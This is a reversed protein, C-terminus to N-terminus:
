KDFIGSEFTYINQNRNGHKEIALSILRELLETMEIGSAKWLHAQLSGPMPNVENIYVKENDKKDILFDVRATGSCNLVKFTKIALDQVEKTKAPSLLAPIKVKSKIGKMTGGKTIYKENFTLFEKYSIPEELASAIPDNNGLVACNIEMVDTIGEEVIIRSDYRTAVEFSFCLEEKNNAKGIGISSGTSAPKVFIPYKLNKEIENYINDPNIGWENKSFWLYKVKPLGYSTLIQNTFIKDMAVASSKLNCGVYPVDLLDLFGQITGDEGFTGHMVPFFVDVRVYKKLLSFKTKTGLQILKDRTDTVPLQYKSDQEIGSLLGTNKFAKIFQLREDILWKGKKTIYIPVINYKKTQRLGTMVAQASIISIDHEVSRGGFIVGINM